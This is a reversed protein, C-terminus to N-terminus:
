VNAHVYDLICTSMSPNPSPLVPFHVKHHKGLVCDDCFDLKEFKGNLIGERKLVDLGKLSIHGLRKHWLTTKDCEPVFAIINDYSVTCMYLNRRREVIFVILSGKMVKMLGKGWRGELGEEELAFTSLRTFIAPGAVVWMKKNEMSIKGKLNEEKSGNNEDM